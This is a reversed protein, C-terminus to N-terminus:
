MNINTQVQHVNNQGHTLAALHDIYFMKGVSLFENYVIM